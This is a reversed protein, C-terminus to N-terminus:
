LPDTLVPGIRILTPGCVRDGITASKPRNAGGHWGSKRGTSLSKLRGVAPHQLIDLLTGTESSYLSRREARRARNATYRADPVGIGDYM